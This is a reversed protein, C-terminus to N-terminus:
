DLRRVFDEVPPRKVVPREAPVGIWIFGVIEELTSDIGLTQYTPPATTL